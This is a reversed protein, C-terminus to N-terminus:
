LEHENNLKKGNNLLATDKEEGVSLDEIILCLKDSIRRRYLSIKCSKLFM